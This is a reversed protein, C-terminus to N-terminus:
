FMNLKGFPFMEPRMGYFKNGFLYGSVEGNKRNKKPKKCTM